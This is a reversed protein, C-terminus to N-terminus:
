PAAEAAAATAADPGPVCTATVPDCVEGQAAFCDRTTRCARTPPGDDFWACGGVLAAAVVVWAARRM